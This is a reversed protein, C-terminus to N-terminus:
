GAEVIAGKSVYRRVRVMIEEFENNTNGGTDCYRELAELSQQNYHKRIDAMEQRDDKLVPEGTDEAQYIRELVKNDRLQVLHFNRLFLLSQIERRIEHRNPGGLEAELKRFRPDFARWNMLQRREIGTRTLAEVLSYGAYRWGLYDEKKPQGSIYPILSKATEDKTQEILAARENISIVSLPLGFCGPTPCIGAVMEASCETCVLDASDDYEIDSM